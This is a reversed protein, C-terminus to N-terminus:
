GGMARLMRCAGSDGDACRRRTQQDFSGPPLHQTRHWVHHRRTTRHHVTHRYSGHRYAAHAARGHGYWGTDTLRTPAGAGCGSVALLMVCAVTRRWAPRLIGSSDPRRM